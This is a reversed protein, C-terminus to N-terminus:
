VLAKWALLNYFYSWVSNLLSPYTISYFPLSSLLHKPGLGVALEVFDWDVFTTTVLYFTLKTM